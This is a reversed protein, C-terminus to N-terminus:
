FKEEQFKFLKSNRNHSLPNLVWYPTRSSTRKIGPGLKTLSRSNSCAATYSMAQIQCQQPQPASGLQMDLKVGPGPVKMRQLHPRLFFFKKKKLQLHTEQQPVVPDTANQSGQSTPKIGPGLCPDRIWCLLNVIWCQRLQLKPPLQSKSSMGPRCPPWFIFLFLVQLYDCEQIKQFLRERKVRTQKGNSIM